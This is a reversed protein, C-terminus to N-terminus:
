FVARKSEAHRDAQRIYQQLAEQSVAGCKLIYQVTWTRKEAQGWITM